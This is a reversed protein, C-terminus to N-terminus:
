YKLSYLPPPAKPVTTLGDDEVYGSVRPHCTRAWAFPAGGTPPAGNISVWDKSDFLTSSGAQSTDSLVARVSIPDLGWRESPSIWSLCSTV